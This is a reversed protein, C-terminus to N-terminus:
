SEFACESLIHLRDPQINPLISEHSPSVIYNTGLIGKLRRVENLVDEVSGFPLIGQADIGGIFVLSDGYKKKLNLADMGAAQAQIPHLFDVGAEILQPIIADVAGCSHFAVAYGRRKAQRILSCVFPHIFRGYADPSILLSRQSGLDNGFFCVDIMEGALDFLRENAQLYFDVVHRTVALVVEPDTYMKIFYNEMGFFDAVVHFFAGWFGSFVAQGALRTRKLEQMTKEFNLCDPDPWEFNEVEAPDRCDAFVGGQGLSERKAGSLTDFMPRGDPPCWVGNEEPYVWRFTDHLKLGLEFDDQVGYYDFITKAHDPHPNGHWFGCAESSRNLIQHLKEQGTM